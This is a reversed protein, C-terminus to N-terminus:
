DLDTTGDLYELISYYSFKIIRDMYDVAKISDYDYGVHHSLCWNADKRFSRYKLHHKFLDVKDNFKKEYETM